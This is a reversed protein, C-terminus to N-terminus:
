SIVGKTIIVNAYLSHDDTQVVAFANKAKRYFEFRDIYGVSCNSIGTSNEMAEKLLAYAPVDLNREKDSEVRDMVLMSHAEYEDIPFLVLIDALIDSTKGSVRIPLKSITDVAVSDSPFNADAIVISDGHGMRALVYLLEPSISSPIGILPM